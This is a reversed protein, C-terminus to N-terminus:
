SIANVIQDDVRKVNQITNYKNIQNFYNWVYNYEHWRDQACMSNMSGRVLRAAQLRLQTYEEIQDDYTGQVYITRKM